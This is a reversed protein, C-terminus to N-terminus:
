YGVRAWGWAARGWRGEGGHRGDRLRCKGQMLGVGVGLLGDTDLSCGGSVSVVGRWGDWGLGGCGEGHLKQEMAAGRWM